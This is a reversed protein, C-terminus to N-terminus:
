GLRSVWVGAWACLLALPPSMLFYTMAASSQGNSLLQLTQFSYSSFTTFGGLLGVVVGARIDARTEALMAVYGIFFSGLSNVLFTALPFPDNWFKPVILDIIFRATAGAAGGAMVLFWIKLSPM